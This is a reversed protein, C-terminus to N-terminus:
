LTKNRQVSAKIGEHKEGNLKLICVTDRHLDM